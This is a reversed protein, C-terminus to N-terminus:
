GQRVLQQAEVAARRALRWESGARAMEPMPVVIVPCVANRSCDRAVLGRRRGVFMRHDSGGIVIVDNPRDAIAALTPGPVGEVVQVRMPVDRPPGGLAEAIATTVVGQAAENIIREFQRAGGYRSYSFTRVAVLPVGRQRALAVAYRLAEYGALSNSIGAIVRGTVDSAM